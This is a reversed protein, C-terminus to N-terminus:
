RVVNVPVLKRVREGNPTEALIEVRYTGPAVARNANDRLTWQVSNEGSNEARGRTVTFVEKGSASLVRVTVLADASLAYNIVVPSNPGKGAPLVTVNGIVPKNSGGPEATITFERTGAQDMRFTYGSTTRLDRKEGTLNDELRLRMGRPVSAMTPWTLTVEGAEEVKVRATWSQRGVRDNIAQAMRTVEGDMEDMIALELNQGPAQPAKPVSLQQARSKDAVVGVYNESDYGAQSRASLKLRWERDTQKWQDAVGRGSFPLGEQFLPPWIIRIPQFTRVFVWYAKHPEIVFDSGQTFLYSNTDPDFFQMSSSIFNNQVLEAWTMSNSPSDEAVGILHSVPVGYNYPNGIMNWGKKLNVLLGGTPSNPDYSAGPLDYSNVPNTPVIWYGIGREISTVPQYTRSDQDYRFALYDVGTQMQLINDLSTDAFIYPFSVMNAGAALSITPVSAVRVVQTLSKSPGPLPAITVNIPLDGFTEGDSVVQWDIPVLQNPNVISVQKEQTEGPALSLGDPLNIICRVNHLPVEKDITAYQNDIWLRVQMPNPNQGAGVYNVVKPADLVVTYPDTYDSIGWSTRIYQVVQRSGGAPVLEGPYKTAMSMQRYNVDASEALGTPDGFVSFSVGNGLGVGTHSGVIIESTRTSDPAIAPPVLDLQFGYNESQGFLARYKNPYNTNSGFRKEWIRIPRNEQFYAHGIYREATFKSPGTLNSFAVQAGTSDPAQSIMGHYMVWILGMTHDVTDTNNLTWGLRVADGLVKARVEVQSGTGAWIAVQYRNSFGVYATILGNDGFLEGNAPDDGDQTILAFCFDGVPDIPWGTTLAMNDDFTSQVSGIAGVGFAFRGSADLNRAPAYCPGTQGGWTATGTVGISVGILPDVVTNIAYDITYPMTNMPDICVGAWGQGFSVASLAGATLIGILKKM